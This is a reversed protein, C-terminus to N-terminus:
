EENSIVISVIPSRRLRQLDRSALFVHLVEGALSFGSNVMTERTENFTKIIIGTIIDSLFTSYSLRVEEDDQWSKTKDWMLDWAERM